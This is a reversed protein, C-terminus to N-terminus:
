RRRTKNREQRPPTLAIDAVSANAFFAYYADAVKMWATHGIRVDDRNSKKNRFLCRQRNAVITEFSEIVDLLRIDRAPRALRYGGGTGPSSLLVGVRVLKGLVQGLYKSPIGVEHAMTTRPIPCSEAHLALYIVARLVYESTLTLM